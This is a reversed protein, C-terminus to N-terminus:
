GNKKNCCVILARVHLSWVLRVCPLCKNVWL